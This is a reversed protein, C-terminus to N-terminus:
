TGDTKQRLFLSCPAGPSKSCSRRSRDPASIRLPQLDPPASRKRTLGLDGAGIEAMVQRLLQAPNGGTLKAGKARAILSSTATDPFFRLTEHHHEQAARGTIRPM